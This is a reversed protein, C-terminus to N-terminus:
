SKVELSAEIQDLVQRLAAIDERILEYTDGSLHPLYPIVEEVLRKAQLIFSERPPVNENVCAPKALGYQSVWNQLTRQSLGLHKAFSNVSVTLAKGRVVEDTEQGAYKEYLRVVRERFGTELTQYESKIDAWRVM